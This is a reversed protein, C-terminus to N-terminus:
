SAYVQGGAVTVTVEPLPQRAPGNEVDGTTINFRSGHCPCAGSAAITCSQHTCVASHGVVSGNAAALIVPGSPGDVILGGASEVDAVSALPTGGPTEAPAESTPATTPVASTAAATASSAASSAAASTTSPAAASSAAASPSTAASSASSATTTTGSSCAAAAALVATGSAALVTRRPLSRSAPTM